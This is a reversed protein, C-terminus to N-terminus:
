DSEPDFLAATDHDADEGDTVIGGNSAMVKIDPEVVTTCPFGSRDGELRKCLLAATAEGIKQLPQAVAYHCFKLLPAYYLYDFASLAMSSQVAETCESMLYSSAGIHVMDNVMFFARPCGSKGLATGMLRYGDQMTMGGLLVFRPDVALGYERMADLYGHLREVSTHVHRDGGLFGIETIGEKALAATVRYAGKRNDTLVVDCDLGSIKRDVLVLPTSSFSPGTLHMGVDGAPIVVLADVNRELLLSIKRKEEEVSNQSSCFVLAYGMAGLLRELQEVIGLFFTNSLEPAVVGVTKTRRVKLSRAVTNRKYNLANVASYVKRETDPSVVGMRNLVRSVTAISVGALKAVDKITAQNDNAM